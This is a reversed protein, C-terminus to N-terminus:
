EPKNQNVLPDSHKGTEKTSKGAETGAMTQKVFDIANQLNKNHHDPLPKYKAFKVLDAMELTERLVSLNHSEIKVAGFSRIIEWTTLELAPVNFGNEIYARLIESLRTYYEKILDRQWLKENKLKDLEELALRHAPINPKPKKITITETPKKKKLYIITLIILAILVIVALAWPLIEILTIPAEMPGIIPKFPQELDIGVSFVNVLFPESSVVKEFTNGYYFPIPPIVYFGTDFITLTFDQQIILINGQTSITDLTSAKVIEIDGTITDNFLPWQYPTNEPLALQITFKFQDGINITSKELDTNVTVEDANLSAIGSILLFSIFIYKIHKDM